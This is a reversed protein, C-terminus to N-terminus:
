VQFPSFFAGTRVLNESDGVKVCTQRYEYLFFSFHIHEFYLRQLVTVVNCMGNWVVRDLRDFLGGGQNSESGRDLFVQLFSHKRCGGQFRPSRGASTLPTRTANLRSSKFM